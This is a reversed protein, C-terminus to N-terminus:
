DYTIIQNWCHEGVIFVTSIVGGGTQSSPRWAYASYSLDKGERKNCETNMIHMRKYDCDGNHIQSNVVDDDFSVTGQQRSQLISKNRNKNLM